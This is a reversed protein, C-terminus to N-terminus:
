KSNWALVEMSSYVPKLNETLMLKYISLMHDIKKEWDFKEQARQRGAIGMLECLEPDNALKLMAQAFGNVFGQRSDPEVLIGCEDTIYDTPGGWKTAIVPRASCMAELVVAGGCEYLSPLVLATAKNLEQACRKQDQFGLFSISSSVGLEDARVGLREREEGDGIICLEVARTQNVISISELLLDVAKWDVLRGIFVFRPVLRRNRQKQSPPKWISTDVGNEVLKIVNSTVTTPLSNYTRQNAVLLVSAKRKGPLILNFLNASYRFLSFLLKEFRSEERSLGPPYTMGGNMPGIIVKAGVNYIMSALKPSVPNPQHVIDIGNQRVLRTVLKKQRFQNILDIPYSVLFSSMRRPLRNGLLSWYWRQIPLDKLFVMRNFENPFVSELEERVREHTILFVDINRKRMVRFIHYPIIAEGGMRLSVSDAVIVVKPTKIM